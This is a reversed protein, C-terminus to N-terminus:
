RVPYRTSGSADSPDRGSRGSGDRGLLGRGEGDFGDSSRFGPGPRECVGDKGGVEDDGLADGLASTGFSDSVGSTGTGSGVRVSGPPPTSGSAPGSVVPLPQFM